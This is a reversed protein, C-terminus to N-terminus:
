SYSKLKMKKRKMLAAHKQRQTPKCKYCYKKAVNRPVFYKKCQPCKKQFRESNYKMGKNEKM